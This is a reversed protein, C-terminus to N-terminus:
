RCAQEQWKKLLVENQLAVKQDVLSLAEETGMQKVKEFICLPLWGELFNEQGM